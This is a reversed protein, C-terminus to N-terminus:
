MKSRDSTDAVSIRRYPVWHHERAQVEADKLRQGFPTVRSYVMTDLAAPSVIVEVRVPTGSQVTLYTRAIVRGSVIADLMPIFRELHGAPQGEWTETGIQVDYTQTPRHLMLEVPCANPARPVLSVRCFDVSREYDVAAVDRQEEVWATMRSSAAEFAKRFVDDSQM